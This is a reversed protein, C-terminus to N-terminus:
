VNHVIKSLTFDYKVSLMKMFDVFSAYVSGEYKPFKLDSNEHNEFPMISGRACLLEIYGFSYVHAIPINLITNNNSKITVARAKIIDSDKISSNRLLWSGNESENIKDLAKTRIDMLPTDLWESLFGSDDMHLFVRLECLQAATLEQGQIFINFLSALHEVSPEYTNPFHTSLEVQLQIRNTFSSNIVLRTEPDFNKNNEIVWQHASKLAWYYIKVPRNLKDIRLYSISKFKNYKDDPCADDYTILDTFTDNNSTARELKQIHFKAYHESM